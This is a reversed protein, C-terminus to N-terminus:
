LDACLHCFYPLKGRIGDLLRARFNRFGSNGGMMMINRYLIPQLEKPCKLVAAHVAEHIGCQDVLGDTPNFMIEPVQFRERSLRVCQDSSKLTRAAAATELRGKIGLTFDPLVYLKTLQNAKIMDSKYDISCYCAAEKIQECVLFEDMLNLQRYSITEKLYNTLLKGGIDLRTTGEKLKRGKWYPVIHTFSDNITNIQM